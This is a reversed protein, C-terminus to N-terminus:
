ISDGLGPYLFTTTTNFDSDAIINLSTPNPVVTIREFHDILTATDSDKLDVIAKRIIKSDSIPGFFQTKIEFDLTYIITRRNELQGEYDDSFSLGILSIPVDETIDNYDAFPKMTITYSPNFFPIIQELIQVADENAKALINLQFNIIYPVATFFKTRVGNNTSVLRSFNNTKPLQRSPDFYLASMEFSMRPLKIALKEDSLNETERIRELFKQKPAYSLPVKLQSITAGSSNKRMVYINNFLTGFVAVCKRIKEHYFHQNLM